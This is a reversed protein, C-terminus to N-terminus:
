FEIKIDTACKFDYLILPYYDVGDPKQKVTGTFIVAKTSISFDDPLRTPYLLIGYYSIFISDNKEYIDFFDSAVCNANRIVDMTKLNEFRHDNANLKVTLYGYDEPAPEEDDSCGGGGVLVMVILLIPLLLQKYEKKNM